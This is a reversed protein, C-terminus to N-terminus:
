GQGGAVATVAQQLSVGDGLQMTSAVSRKSSPKTCMQVCFWPQNLLERHDCWCGLVVVLL